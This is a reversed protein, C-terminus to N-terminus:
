RSCPAAALSRSGGGRRVSPGDTGQWPADISGWELQGCVADRHTLYTMLAFPIRDVTGLIPANVINAQEPYSLQENANAHPDLVM